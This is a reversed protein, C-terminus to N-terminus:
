GKNAEPDQRAINGKRLLKNPFSLIQVINGEKQVIEHHSEGKGFPGFLLKHM